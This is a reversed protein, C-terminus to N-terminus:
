TRACRLDRENQRFTIPNGCTTQSYRRCIDWSNLFLPQHLSVVVLFYSFTWLWSSDFSLYHHYLSSYALLTLPSNQAFPPYRMNNNRHDLKGEAAIDLFTWEGWSPTACAPTNYVLTDSGHDSSWASHQSHRDGSPKLRQM